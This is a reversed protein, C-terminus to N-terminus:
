SCSPVIGIVSFRGCTFLSLLELLVVVMVAGVTLWWARRARPPGPAEPDPPRHDVEHLVLSARDLDSRRVYVRVPALPDGFPKLWAGLAPNSTDLVTEIAEDALRGRILHAVLHNRATTLLSWGHGGGGDGDSAPPLQGGVSGPRRRLAISV